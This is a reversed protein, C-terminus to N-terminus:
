SWFLQWAGSNGNLAQIADALVSNDLFKSVPLLIVVQLPHKLNTMTTLYSKGAFGSPDPRGGM